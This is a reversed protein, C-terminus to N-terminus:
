LSQLLGGTRLECVLVVCRVSNVGLFTRCWPFWQPLLGSVPPNPSPVAPGSLAVVVVVVLHRVLCGAHGAPGAVAVRAMGQAEDQPAALAMEVPSTGPTAYRLAAPAGVATRGATGFVLDATLEPVLDAATSHEVCSDVVVAAVGVAVAREAAVRVDDVLVIAAGVADAVVVGSVVGPVFGPVLGSM